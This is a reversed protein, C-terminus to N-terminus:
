RWSGPLPIAPACQETQREHPHQADLSPVKRKHLFCDGVLYTGLGIGEKEIWKRKSIEIRRTLRGKM